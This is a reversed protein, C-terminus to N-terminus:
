VRSERQDLIQSGAVPIISGRGGAEPVMRILNGTHSPDPPM